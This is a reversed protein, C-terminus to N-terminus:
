FRRSGWDKERSEVMWMAAPGARCRGAPAVGPAGCHAPARRPGQVSRRRRAPGAPWMGARRDRPVLVQFM